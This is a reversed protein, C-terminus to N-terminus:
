LTDKRMIKAPNGAIIVNDPFSKTVVSGAGVIVNNGLTVGPLIIVNAALWSNDGINIPSFEIHKAWTKDTTDHNSSIIKVGPGFLVNDGFIIGNFAQFYCNGSIAFSRAVRTGIKIKDPAIVVSTFHVAWACKRNVGLIRQFIFNPILVSADPVIRGDEIRQWIGTKVLLLKLIRKYFM